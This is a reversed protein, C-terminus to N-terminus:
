AGRTQRGRHRGSRGCIASCSRRPEYIRGDDFDRLSFLGAAPPSGGGALCDRRFRLVRRSQDSAAVLLMSNSIYAYLAAWEGVAARRAALARNAPDTYVKAFAQSEALEPKAKRLEAAKAKLADLANDRKAVALDAQM